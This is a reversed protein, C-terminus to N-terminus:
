NSTQAVGAPRNSRRKASLVIRRHSRGNYRLGLLVRRLDFLCPEESYTRPPKRDDWTIRQREGGRPNTHEDCASIGLLRPGTQEQSPLTRASFRWPRARHTIRLLTLPAGGGQM